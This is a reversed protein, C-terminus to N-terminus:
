RGCPPALFADLRASDPPESRYVLYGDPRVLALTPRVAGLRGHVALEPDALGEVGPLSLVPATEGPAVVVRRVGPGLSWAVAAAARAAQEIAAPKASCPFALLTHRYGRLVDRLVEGAHGRAVLVLKWAPNGADQIGTNMGEGGVPTCVHAADGALLV